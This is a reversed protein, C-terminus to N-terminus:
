AFRKFRIYVRPFLVFLSVWRAILWIWSNKLLPRCITGPRRAYASIARRPATRILARYYLLLLSM